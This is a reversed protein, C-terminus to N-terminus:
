FNCHRKSNIAHWKSRTLLFKVIALSPSVAVARNSAEASALNVRRRQRCDLLSEWSTLPALRSTLKTVRDPVLILLIEAILCLKNVFDWIMCTCLVRVSCRNLRTFYSIWDRHVFHRAQQTFDYQPRWRHTCCSRSGTPKCIWAGAFTLSIQKEILNCLVM